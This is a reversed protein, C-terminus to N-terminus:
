RPSALRAMVWRIFPAKADTYRARDDRFAEALALKLAGYAERIEPHARLEDRFFLHDRFFASSTEVLHLHHTRPAGKQFFLREPMEAEVDSRYQWGRAVLADVAARGMSLSPVGVLIDIVPKSPLGAVATSGVHEIRADDCLITALRAREEEFRLAWAADWPVIEIPDM